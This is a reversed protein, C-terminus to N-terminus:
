IGSQSDSHPSKQETNEVVEAHSETLKKEKRVKVFKIQFDQFSLCCSCVHLCSLVPIKLIWNRKIMKIVFTLLFSM